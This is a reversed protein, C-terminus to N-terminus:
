KYKFVMLTIDDNFVTRQSFDGLAAFMADIIAQPPKEANELLISEVRQLGFFERSSNETETLGDTYFLICDGQEINMTKEEFVVTKKIGLLLGDTDLEKVTGTMARYLLPPPHGANTFKLVQRTLDAQLYFLTIFYDSKNLDEFLFHNLAALTEAPTVPSGTQSRMASRTEVMFLAPGVSHGSVDAIVMDLQGNNRFFYDFYDGGAKDATL